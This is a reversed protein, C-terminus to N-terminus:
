AHEEIDTPRTTREETRRRGLTALLDEHLEFWVTHYSDIGPKTFWETRGSEVRRRADSLRAGYTSLRELSAGMRRTVPQVARDVLALRIMVSRDHVPDSHDNVVEVGDRRLVQWDSCIGLLQTNLGLFQQYCQEIHPRAGAADLEDALLREGEARGSSTLSWGDLIGDHRRVFGADGLRGLIEQLDEPGVRTRAALVELDAVSRVRLTHLVSLIRDHSM